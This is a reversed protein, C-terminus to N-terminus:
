TMPKPRRLRVVFLITIIVLAGALISLSLPTILQPPIFPVSGLNISVRHTSHHYTFQLLWSDGLSSATYNMQAGDLSLTLDAINSVLSKAIYINAYGTTGSAGSVTFSLERSTSNFALQSVTSNSEVSFINQESSETVALNVVTSAALFNSDGSWMARVLYNATAPPIWVASYEGNVNTNVLAIDSWSNGGTVSYSLLVAAGPIDESNSTLNGNIAVKFGLSSTSSSLSVYINARKDASVVIQKEEISSLGRGDTANLTIAYNGLKYFVHTVTLGTATTNDGFKWQYSVIPVKMSDNWGMQSSSANFTVTEGTVPDHPSWSFDAVPSTPQSPPSAAGIAYFNNGAGM